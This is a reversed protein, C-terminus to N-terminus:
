EDPAVWGAAILDDRMSMMQFGECVEEGCNCPAGFVGHRHLMEVTVDSREAYRREFADINPDHSVAVVAEGRGCALRWQVM